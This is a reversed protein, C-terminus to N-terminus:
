SAHHETLRAIPILDIIEEGCCKDRQHGKRSPKLWNRAVANAGAEFRSRAELKTMLDAVMRRVTRLGLGLKKCVAEDTLGQSLLRLLESEMNSPGEASCPASSLPIASAWVQEFLGVLATIFGAGTVQFASCNGLEPDVPLLATTRDFLMMWTPLTPTTRVEGGAASLWEAYRMTPRDNCASEQYVTWVAAGNRLLDEDIAKRLGLNDVSQLGTPLLTLCEIRTQRALVGMRAQVTTVGDLREWENRVGAGCVEDYEAILRGVAAKTAAFEHQRRLLDAHQRDLLSQLAVSPSGPILSDSSRRLVGLEVLRDVVAHVEETPIDLTAVVEDATCGGRGLIFRYM